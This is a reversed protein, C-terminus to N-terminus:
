STKPQPHVYFVWRVRSPIPEGDDDRAPKFRFKLSLQMAQMDLSAGMGEALEVRQVKGNADIDLLLIISGYLGETDRDPADIVLTDYRGLPEPGAALSARVLLEDAVGDGLGGAGAGVLDPDAPAPEVPPPEVPPPEVPPPDPQVQEPKVPQVRETVRKKKPAVKEVSPVVAPPAPPPAPAGIAGALRIRGRPM